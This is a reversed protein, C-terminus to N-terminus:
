FGARNKHKQGKREAQAVVSVCSEDELGDVPVQKATGHRMVRTLHPGVTRVLRDTEEVCRLNTGSRAESDFM